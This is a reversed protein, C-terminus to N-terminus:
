PGFLPRVIPVVDPDALTVRSLEAASMWALETHERPAANYPTGTWSRIHFFAVDFDPGRLRGIPTIGNVSTEIGLEERAERILAESELEGNEVHGGPLDWKGPAWSSGPGRHALLVRNGAQLVACVCHHFPAVQGTRVTRAGSGPTATM